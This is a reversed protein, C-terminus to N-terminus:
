YGGARLLYGYYKAGHSTPDGDFGYGSPQGLADTRLKDIVASPAGPCKGTAICLAATGAAHPSAMSTGSITNYGGGKWTSYICVGPAAITHAEDASGPTAYNSFDAATDDVDARCTAAAGGSPQGNFDAVATVSLVEKYSAPVSGAMNAGDNGAAVVYTVGAAVSSCIAKHMADGNDNGCNGDDTGAGGLSMNAVKINFRSANATVWDIGCIINSFRGSGRNDLVRVSYIPIGPAVGVVGSGNNFAGITGAVHTGHGNGDSFSKGTQCNVGGAINLDAHPGSGTDIVAVATAVPTSPASWDNSGYHSSREADIRDVGTPVTQAFAEVDRDDSVFAVRPDRRVDDIRAHPIKAAYGKLASHYRASIEAGYAHGHHAALGDVDREDDYFVVIVDRTSAQPAQGTARIGSAALVAAVSLTFALRKLM